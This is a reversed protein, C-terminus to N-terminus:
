CIPSWAMLLRALVGLWLLINRSCHAELCSRVQPRPAAAQLAGRGDPECDVAASESYSRSPRSCAHHIWLQRLSQFCLRSGAAAKAAHSPMLNKSLRTAVFDLAYHESQLAATCASQSWELCPFSVSSKCALQWFSKNVLGQVYCACVECTM